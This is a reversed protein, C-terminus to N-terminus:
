NKLVLEPYHKFFDKVIGGHKLYIERRELYHKFLIGNKDVIDFVIPESERTRFVRFLAQSFYDRCDVALLLTNMKPHDFGTSAKQSTAVLIRAERDFEQNSGLLSTVYQGEETLKDVIIKGQKVRKVLILFNRHKFEKVIKVILENREENEAQADLISSWNVKGSETLEGKIEIKTEVKYVIHKQSIERIIKGEGYYLPILLNMVDNRYATASLGILYRPQLYMMFGSLKEATLLHLEDVILLGIDKFFTRTKKPINQGNIIYFNSEDDFDSKTNLIQVKASPIFKLISEEWQKMLVLRNVVILTKMKISSAMNISLATKGFSCYASIIVSGTRNLIDMAEKKVIKQEERLTGEFKVEMKSFNERLPRKLGLINYAYAFPMIVENNIVQYPYMYKIVSSYKGPEIRITLEKDIRERQTDSLKNIDIRCSM